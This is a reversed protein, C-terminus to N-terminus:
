YRPKRKEECAAEVARWTAAVLARVDSEWGNDEITRLLKARPACVGLDDGTDITNGKQKWRGEDVLYDVCSGLDDIGYSYYVPVDVTRQRGTLRNKAIRLRCTIGVKRDREGVRRKIASGLSTWIEVAAYFTLAHGGSRTKKAEFLGANINDRTQNIILLISGTDRLKHMVARLCRSNIKAKGDGYDGKARGGKATAKKHEEFKEAEAKSTLADMSDLVYLCPKGGDLANDLHMYFEEVFQSYVPLGDEDWAPPQIRDAAAQGFYRPVDMMAGGEVDDYILAYEAFSPDVAAEALLSHAFWTKASGSDGVWFAYTGKALMGDPRGSVNLNLLTSGSSVFDGKGLQRKTKKARLAQKIEDVTQGTTKPKAM